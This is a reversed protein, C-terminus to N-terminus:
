LTKQLRELIGIAETLSAVRYTSELTEGIQHPDIYLSLCGLSLAPLIENLWNDGVSLIQSYEVHFHNKLNEIWIGTKTPKQSQFQKFHFLHSLGLKVLIRESDVEPSNTMLVLKCGSVNLDELLQVLEPRQTMQFEDTMMYARTELFATQSQEPTVGYHRAMSGPVWWLDGASLYRNMDITIPEPYLRHIEDLPLPEGDWSYAEQVIFHTQVLVLDKECDYIRGIRLTHQDQCGALYDRWFNDKNAEPVYKQLAKAYFNFHHTDEYLTGDLDFIILKLSTSSM